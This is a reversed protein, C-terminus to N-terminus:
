NFLVKVGITFQNTIGKETDFLVADQIQIATRPSVYAEFGIKPGFLGVEDDLSIPGSDGRVIGLGVIAGGYVLMNEEPGFANSNIRAQGTLSYLALDVEGFIGAITLGGGFEWRANETTYAGVGGLLLTSQNKGDDPDLTTLSALGTISTKGGIEVANQALATGSLLLASASALGAVVVMVSRTRIM